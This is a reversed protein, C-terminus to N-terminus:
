PQLAGGPSGRLTATFRASDRLATLRLEYLGLYALPLRGAYSGPAAPELSVQRDLEAHAIPIADVTLRAGDVPRGERDSLQLVIRGDHTGSLEITGGVRWGLDTNRVGQAMTSDWDLAKRYFDPEYALSQEGSATWLLLGNAIVTLGLVAALALPWLRGTRNM